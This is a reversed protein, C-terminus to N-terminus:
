ESIVKIRKPDMFVGQDKNLFNLFIICYFMGKKTNEHENNRGFLVVFRLHKMHAGLNTNFSDSGLKTQPSDNM